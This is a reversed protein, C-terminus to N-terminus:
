WGGAGLQEYIRMLRQQVRRRVKQMTGQVRQRLARRSIYRKLAFDKLQERGMEGREVVVFGDFVTLNGILTPSSATAEVLEVILPTLAREGAWPHNPTQFEAWHEWAWDEIIYLGGPRLLPFLTEFSTKTPGYIHSADDIVLDLVGDCEAEVIARLRKADTQDVGWYTKLQESLGRSERYRKFYPSDGRPAFDVGVHKRPHFLEFWFAMSGGDWLGLELLHQPRFDPRFLWFRAYQDVLPKIKYFVFCEDGLEWEANKHHELRFTLGDLLMRDDHWVLREFMIM